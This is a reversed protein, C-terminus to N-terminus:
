QHPQYHYQHPQHHHQRRHHHYHHHRHHHHPQRHRRRRRRHHHHHLLAYRATEGAGKSELKFDPPLLADQRNGLVFALFALVKADLIAIIALIYAWRVSCEGLTYKDAREGCLARVEAADWADPFILCGLVMCVAATLQMWACIKYVTATNCFFFLAFCVICTVTLVMSAGVFFSAARMASSPITSFDAFSGRCKLDVKSVGGSVCLHFLGFYGARPTEAGDGVWYPQVFVVVNIIAFCITFIAWLVGIARSNRVYNTHYIQAAEQASLLMVTRPPAADRTSSATLPAMSSMLGVGIGGGGNKGLLLPHSDAPAHIWSVTEELQISATLSPSRRTKGLAAGDM